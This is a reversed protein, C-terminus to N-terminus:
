LCNHLIFAKHKQLLKALASSFLDICSKKEIILCLIYYEDIIVLKVFLFSHQEKDLM